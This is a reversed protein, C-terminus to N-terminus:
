PYRQNGGGVSERVASANQFPCMFEHSNIALRCFTVNTQLYRTRFPMADTPLYKPMGRQEILRYISKLEPRSPSKQLLTKHVGHCSLCVTCANPILYLTLQNRSMQAEPIGAGLMESCFSMAIATSRGGGPEELLEQWLEELNEPPLLEETRRLDM